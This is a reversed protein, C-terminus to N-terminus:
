FNSAADEDSELLIPIPSLTIVGNLAGLLVCVDANCVVTLWPTIM